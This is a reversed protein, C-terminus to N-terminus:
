SSATCVQACDFGPASHCGVRNDVTARWVKSGRYLYDVSAWQWVWRAVEIENRPGSEIRVDCSSVTVLLPESAGFAERAGTFTSLNYLTLTSFYSLAVLVALTAARTLRLRRTGDGVYAKRRIASEHQNVGRAPEAAQDM